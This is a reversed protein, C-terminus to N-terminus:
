TSASRWACRGPMRFRPAKRRTLAWYEHHLDSVELSTRNRIAGSVAPSLFYLGLVFLFAPFVRLARRAYFGSCSPKQGSAHQKLLQSGILYGSLVFFLDVGMWGFEHLPMLFKPIAESSMHRLAVLLITAARLSELGSVREANADMAARPRAQVARVPLAPQSRSLQSRTPNDPPKFRHRHTRRRALCSRWRVLSPIARALPSASHRTMPTRQLAARRGFSAWNLQSHWPRTSRVIAGRNIIGLGTAVGENQPGTVGPCTPPWANWPM